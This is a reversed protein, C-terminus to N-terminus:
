RHLGVRGAVRAHACSSHSAAVPRPLVNRLLRAAPCLPGVCDDNLAAHVLQDTQSEIMGLGPDASGLAELFRRCQPWSRRWGHNGFRTMLLVVAVWFRGLAAATDNRV